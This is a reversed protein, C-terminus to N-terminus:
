RSRLHQKRAPLSYRMSQGSGELRVADMTFGVYMQRRHNGVLIALMLVPVTFVVTGPRASRYGRRVVPV